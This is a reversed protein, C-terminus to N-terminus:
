KQVEVLLTRPFEGYVVIPEPTPIRLLLALEGLAVLVFLATLLVVHRTVRSVGAEELLVRPVHGEFDRADVEVIPPPIECTPIPRYTSPESNM